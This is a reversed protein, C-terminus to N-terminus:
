RVQTLIACVNEIAKKLPSRKSFPYDYKWSITENIIFKASPRNNIFM